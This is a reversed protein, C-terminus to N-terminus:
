DFARSYVDLDISEGPFRTKGTLKMGLKELVRASPRNAPDIVGCLGRMGLRDRAYEMVALSAEIAYGNGWHEPLYAYGIDALPLVDRKMLSAFGLREGTERHVTLYAGLGHSGYSAIMKQSLYREADALTRVGRDGINRHYSPENLLRLM